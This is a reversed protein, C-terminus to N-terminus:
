WAFEMGANLRSMLTGCRATAWPRYSRNAAAPRWLPMEGPSVSVHEGKRCLDRRSLANERDRRDGAEM